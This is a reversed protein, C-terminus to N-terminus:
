EQNNNYDMNLNMVAPKFWNCTGAPSVKFKLVPNLGCVPGSNDEEVVKYCNKCIKNSHETYGMSEKVVRVAESKGM